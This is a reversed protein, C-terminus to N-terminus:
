IIKLLEKILDKKHLKLEKSSSGKKSSGKSNEIM